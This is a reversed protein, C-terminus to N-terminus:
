AVARTPESEETEDENELSSDHTTEAKLYHSRAEKIQKLRESAIKIDKVLWGPSFEGTKTM